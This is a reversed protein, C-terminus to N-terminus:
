MEKRKASYMEALIDQVSQKFVFSQLMKTGTCTRRNKRRFAPISKSLGSYKTVFSLRSTVTHSHITILYQECYVSSPM